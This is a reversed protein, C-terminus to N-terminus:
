TLVSTCVRKMQTTFSFLFILFFFIEKWGDRVIVRMGMGIVGKGRVIHTHTHVHTYEHTHLYTYTHVYVHTYMYIHM